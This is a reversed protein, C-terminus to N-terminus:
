SAEEPPGRSGARALYVVLLSLQVAGFGIKVAYPLVPEHYQSFFSEVVGAWVLLLVVGAMLTALDPAMRRLRVGLPAREGRGLIVKGLLLGAQGAVLIAPIEFSGHPLLWGALFATQGAAVYDLAVAGLIIGNYFLVLITGIAWTVGLAMTFMAVRANHTMLYSSFTSKAGELRDTRAGEEGAVRDAPNGQLHEFPLLIEKSEPDLTIAL